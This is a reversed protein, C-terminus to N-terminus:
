GNDPNRERIAAAIEESTCEPMDEVVKACAETEANIARQIAQVAYHEDEEGRRLANFVAPTGDVECVAEMLEAAADRAAQGVKM